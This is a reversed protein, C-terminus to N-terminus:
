SLMALPDQIAHAMLKFEGHCKRSSLARAIASETRHQLLRPLTNARIGRRSPGCAM